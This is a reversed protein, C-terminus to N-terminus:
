CFQTKENGTADIGSHSRQVGAGATVLRGYRVGRTRNHPGHLLHSAGEGRCGGAGQSGRSQQLALSPFQFFFKRSWGLHIDQYIYLTAHDTVPVSLISM